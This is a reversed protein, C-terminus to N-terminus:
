PMSSFIGMLGCLALCTVGGIVLPVSGLGIGVGLM